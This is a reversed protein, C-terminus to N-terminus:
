GALLGAAALREVIVAAALDHGAATPHWVDLLLTRPSGQRRFPAALDITLWRRERDLRSLRRELARSVRGTLQRDDPFLVVVLRAGGEEAVAAMEAYRDRLWALSAPAPRDSIAWARTREAPDVADARPLAARQVLRCLRLSSPCRELLPPPHFPAARAAPDPFAADPVLPGLTTATARSFFLTPDNLDNSCFQVLVVDPAYGMAVGAPLKAETYPNYGPVGFNLVEYRGAARGNLRAELRKPFTEELAVGWGFAVSDGLVAIRFVGPPKARAYSRDRLGDRSVEFDIGAVRARAGPRLGYLWPRDPRLEHLGALSEVPGGGLARLALEIAGLAALTALCALALTLAGALGSTGGHRGAARV